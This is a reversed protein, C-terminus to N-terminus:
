FGTRGRLESFDLMVQNRYASRQCLRESYPAVASPAAVSHGMEFYPLASHGDSYKVDLFDRGLSRCEPSRGPRQDLTCRREM